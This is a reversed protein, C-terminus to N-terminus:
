AASLIARINQIQEGNTLIQALDIEAVDMALLQLLDALAIAKDQPGTENNNVMEFLINIHERLPRDSDNASSLGDIKTGAVKGLADIYPVEDKGYNGKVETGTEFCLLRAEVLALTYNEFDDTDSYKKKVYKRFESTELIGQLIAGFQKLVIKGKQENKYNVLVDLLEGKVIPTEALKIQRTVGSLSKYSVSINLAAEILKDDVNEGKRVASLLGYLVDLSEDQVYYGKETASLRGKELAEALTSAITSRNGLRARLFKVPNFSFGDNSHEAFDVLWGPIIVAQVKEFKKMMNAMDFPTLSDPSVSNKDLYFLVTADESYTQKDNMDSLSVNVIDENRFKFNSFKNEVDLQVGIYGSRTLVNLGKEINNVATEVNQVAISNNTDVKEFRLIVGEIAVFDNKDLMYKSSSIKDLLSSVDSNLENNTIEHTLIVRINKNHTEAILTRLTEVSLKSSVVITDFNKSATEAVRNQISELSSLEDEFVYDMNVPRKKMAKVREESRESQLAIEINEFIPMEPNVPIINDTRGLLVTGKKTKEVREEFIIRNKGNNSLADFIDTSDANSLISTFYVDTNKDVSMKATTFGLSDDQKVNEPFLNDDVYNAIVAVKVGMDSLEKARRRVVNNYESTNIVYTTTDLKKIQRKITFNRVSNKIQEIFSYIVAEVNNFMHLIYNIVKGTITTGGALATAKIIFALRKETVLQLNKNGNIYQKHKELFEKQTMTGSVISMMDGLESFPAVFISYVACFANKLPELKINEIFNPYSVTLAIRLQDDTVESNLSYMYETKQMKIVEGTGVAKYLIVAEGPLVLYRNGYVENGQNSLELDRTSCYVRWPNTKASFPLNWDIPTDSMNMLVLTDDDYIGYEGLRDGSVMFGFHKEQWDQSQAQRGDPHLWAVDKDGNGNVIKGSFPEGKSSDLSPHGLRYKALASMYKALPAQKDWQMNLYENSQNYPNNNGHQTRLFEDGMGFMIPGQCFSLVTMADAVYKGIQENDYGLGMGYENPGDNNNWGNDLNDKERVALLQAYPHGDHSGMYYIYPQRRSGIGNPDAIAAALAGPGSRGMIFNRIAERTGSNWTFVDGHFDDTYYSRVGRIGGTAMYGEAIIDIGEKEKIESLIASNEFIQMYASTPDFERTEENRAAAAMLDHRFSRAGMLVYMEKYKTMMNLVVPNNTNFANGCGSADDYGSKNEPNLLYYTSNDLLRYCLSPDTEAAGEGSHNDVVDMAFRIGNKSLKGITEKLTVLDEQPRLPDGFDPNLAFFTVTQYGSNNRLGRQHSYPDNADSQIPQVEVTNIGISKLHEIVEDDALGQLRGRKEQPLDQKLATFGGVHLEYIVPRQSKSLVPPKVTEVADLKRLDVVVSKPVFPASDRTDPKYLNGKECVRLSDDFVFRSEQQFSFPDVALKNPNFYHGNQPEYPGYARFGYRQGPKVDPLYINWVDKKNKSMEYRTENGQEDFLCLEMKQANKSYVGFNTGQGDYIAGLGNRKMLEYISNTIHKDKSFQLESRSAIAKANHLMHLVYNIVKGLINNGGFMVTTKIISDLAREMVLRTNDDGNVYQKHKELFDKQTITGSVISAMDNLEKFPVIFVSYFNEVAVALPKFKIKSALSSKYISLLPKGNNNEILAIKTEIYKRQETSFKQAANKLLDITQKYLYNKHLTDFVADIESNGVNHRVSLILFDIVANQVAIGDSVETETVSAPIEEEIPENEYFVKGNKITLKQGNANIHITDPNIEIREIEVVKKGYGSNITDEIVKADLMKNAQLKRLTQESFIITFVAKVPDVSLPFMEFVASKKIFDFANREFLEAQRSIISNYLNDYDSITGVTEPTIIIFSQKKDELLKSIGATHFGGSIIVDIKAATKLMEEANGNRVPNIKAVNNEDKVLLSKVFYEDRDTNVSYFKEATDIYKRLADLNAFVIYKSLIREFEGFAYNYNKYERYNIKNQLLSEFISVFREMFLVEQESLTKSSKNRVENVFMEEQRVFDIPNTQSNLLIYSSFLKIQPFKGYDKTKQLHKSLELYFVKKTEYSKSLEILAKYEAFSLEQKLLNIANATEKSIIDTDIKNRISLIQKFLSLQPYKETSIGYKRAFKFLTKFYKETTIENKKYKQSLALIKKNDKGYIKKGISEIQMQLPLLQAEVIAQNRKMEALRVLNASYASFNEAGKLIDTKGETVSFYEAGSLEGGSMMAEIFAKKTSNDSIDALWKTSLKGQPAGEVYIDSIGYKKDLFSLVSAINKQTQYDGHLDQIQVVVKSTSFDVSNTVKGLNFPIVSGVYTPYVSNLSITASAAFGSIGSSSLILGGTVAVAICKNLFAKKLFMEM